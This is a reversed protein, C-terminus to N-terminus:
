FISVIKRLYINKGDRVILKEDEMESLYGAIKERDVTKNALVKLSEVIAPSDDKIFALNKKDYQAHKIMVNLCAVYAWKVELRVLKYQMGDFLEAPVYYQTTTAKKIEYLSEKDFLEM